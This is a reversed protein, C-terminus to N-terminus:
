IIVYLILSTCPLFNKLVSVTEFSVNVYIICIKAIQRPKFMKITVIYCICVFIFSMEETYLYTVFTSNNKTDEMITKIMSVM